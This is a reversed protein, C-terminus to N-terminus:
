RKCAIQLSLQRSVHVVFRLWESIIRLEELVEFFEIPPQFCQLLWPRRSRWDARHCRSRARGCRGRRARRLRERRM